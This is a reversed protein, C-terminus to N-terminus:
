ILNYFLESFFQKSATKLSVTTDTPDLELFFKELVRRLNKHSINRDAMDLLDIPVSSKKPQYSQASAISKVFKVNKVQSLIERKNCCIVVMEKPFRSNVIYKFTDTLTLLDHVFVVSLLPQYWLAWYHPYLLTQALIELIHVLIHYLSM